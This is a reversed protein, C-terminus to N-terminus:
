LVGAQDGSSLSSSFFVTRSFPPLLPFPLSLSLSLSLPVSLSPLVINHFATQTGALNLVSPSPWLIQLIFVDVWWGVEVVVVLVWSVNACVHARM